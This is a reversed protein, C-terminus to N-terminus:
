VDLMSKPTQRNLGTTSDASATSADSGRRASSRSDLLPASASSSAQAAPQYPPPPTDEQLERLQQQTLRPKASPFLLESAFQLTREYRRQDSKGTYPTPLVPRQSLPKPNARRPSPGSAGPSMEINDRYPGSEAGSQQETTGDDMMVAADDRRRGGGVAAVRRRLREIVSLNLHDDSTVRKWWSPKNVIGMESDIAANRAKRQRILELDENPHHWGWICQILMIAVMPAHGVVYITKVDANINIPNIDWRFCVAWQFSIMAAQLPLIFWFRVPIYRVFNIGQWFANRGRPKYHWITHALSIFNIFYCLMLFVAAAKFRPSHAFPIARLDIQQQSRQLQTKSWSQPIVLFFNMWLFLYYVLPLWFEFMGRRDFQPYAFPNPDIWQRESWSNWHRIAEWVLAMAGMQMLYWFFSTIVIPISPLYYRDVDINAFLGILGCACVFSGWYWQWRRGIPFFRRETPLHLRGHKRLCPLIFFLCVAYMVIFATGVHGRPGTPLMARYCNTSNAFSGNAFIAYPFHPELVLKCKSFNSLTHNSYLTYNWQELLTINLHHGGIITDTDNDGAPWPLSNELPITM